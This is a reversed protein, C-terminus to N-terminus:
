PARLKDLLNVMPAPLPVHFVLSEGSRPHVFGLTGAHLAQGKLDFPDKTAYVLDGVVPHDIYAMHVRIQHTRGTELRLELYTYDSFTELVHFHTIAARGGGDERVAMQQRKNPHRGIPADVRGRHHSFVGHVVAHYIRTMSHDKLQESLGLHALDTKAVVLLGSTDKDIRHVIGPREQGSSMSLHGFHWLLANVLTGSAHGPAPHVVMGRPKNVVLLDSDEYVIDLPIDQPETDPSSPAPLVIKVLQGGQVKKSAKAVRGDIYVRDEDVLRQIFTRTLETVEAIYKDLRIGTKGVTLLIEDDDGDHYLLDNEMENM